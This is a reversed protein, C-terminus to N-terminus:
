LNPRKDRNWVPKQGPKPVPVLSGPCFGRNWVPKQGPKPVPVFALKSGLCFASDTTTTSLQVITECFSFSLRIIVWWLWCWNDWSYRDGVQLHFSHLFGVIFWAYIISFWQTHTRSYAHLYYISRSFELFIILWWHLYERLTPNSPNPADPDVM